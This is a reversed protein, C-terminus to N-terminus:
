NDELFDNVNVEILMSNTPNTYRDSSGTDKKPETDIEKKESKRKPSPSNSLRSTRSVASGTLPEVTQPPSWGHSLRGSSTRRRQRTRTPEGVRKGEAVTVISIHMPSYGPKISENAVTSPANTDTSQGTRQTKATEVGKQLLLHSSQSTNPHETSDRTQKPTTAKTLVNSTQRPSQTRATTNTAQRPSQTISTIQITQRPSQTPTKTIPPLNKRTPSAKSPDKSQAPEHPQRLGKFEVRMGHDGHQVVPPLHKTDKDQDTTSPSPNLESQTPPENPM